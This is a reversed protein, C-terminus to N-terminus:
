RPPRLPRIEVQNICADARATLVAHCARGIDEPQLKWGADGGEAHSETNVSAPYITTVRIGLYRLELFLSESLGTVAHKTAAYASGGALPLRGSVSSVNVIHGGGRAKLHPLAARVAHFVGSVNTELMERWEELSLGFIDKRIVIGANNVLADLGGLAAALGSVAAETGAADRVDCARVECRGGAAVIADRTEDLSALKRGILGVAFGERALVEAIGRGIGRGGGTIIANV